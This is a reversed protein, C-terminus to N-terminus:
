HPAVNGFATLTLSSFDREKGQITKKRSHEREEYASSESDVRRPGDNISSSYEM